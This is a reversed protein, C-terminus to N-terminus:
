SRVPVAIAATSRRWLVAFLEVGALTAHIPLSIWSVNGEAVQAFVGAFFLNGIILPVHALLGVVNFLRPRDTTSGLWLAVAIVFMLAYAQYLGGFGLPQAPLMGYMGQGTNYGITIIVMSVTTVVFLITGHVRLVIRRLHDGPSSM